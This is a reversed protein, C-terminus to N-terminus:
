KKKLIRVKKNHQRKTMNKQGLDNTEDDALSTVVLSLKEFCLIGLVGKNNLKQRQEKWQKILDQLNFQPNPVDNIVEIIGNAMNNLLQKHNSNVYLKVAQILNKQHKTMMKKSGKEKERDTMM